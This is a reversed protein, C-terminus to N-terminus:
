TETRTQTLLSSPFPLLFRLLSLPPLLPDTDYDIRMKTRDLHELQNQTYELYYASEERAREKETKTIASNGPSHDRGFSHQSNFLFM